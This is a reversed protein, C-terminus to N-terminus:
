QTSTSTIDVRRNVRRKAEDENPLMPITESSSTTEFRDVGIGRLVFYEKVAEARRLGLKENADENGVDDTHGSLRLRVTPYKHLLRLVEELIPVMFPQIDAKNFEFGSISYIFDHDREAREVPKLSEFAEKQFEIVRDVNTSIIEEAQPATLGEYEPKVPKNMTFPKSGFALQVKIGASFSSVKDTYPRSNDEYRSHFASHTAYEPSRDNYDFLKNDSGSRVDTLGYDVYVGAYLFWKEDQKLRWKMGTEFSLAVNTKFTFSKNNWSDYKHMGWGHSPMGTFPDNTTYGGSADVEWGKTSIDGKTGYTGSIPIGVKVGANAYWKVGLWIENTQFKILLPINIYAATHRQQIDQGDVFVHYAYRSTEDSTTYRDALLPIRLIDQLFSYEAGASLSWNYLVAYSYGIGGLYGLSGTGVSHSGTVSSYRLTSIGGGGWISYEHRNQKNQKIYEGLSTEHAQGQGFVSTACFGALIMILFKKM